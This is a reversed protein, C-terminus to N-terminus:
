KNQTHTYTHPPHIHSEGGIKGITRGYSTIILISLNILKLVFLIQVQHTSHLTTSTHCFQTWMTKHLARYKCTHLRKREKKKLRLMSYSNQGHLLLFYTQTITNIKM